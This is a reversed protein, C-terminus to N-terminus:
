SEIEELKLSSTTKKSFRCTKYYRYLHDYIVTEYQRQRSTFQRNIMMHIHSSLFSNMNIQLKKKLTEAIPKIQIEKEYITTYLAHLNSNLNKSFSDLIDCELSRYHIDLESRLVKTAKFENKFSQQMDYLLIFKEDISLSFSNLFSDIALLSFLLQVTENKFNNKINLYNMIMKSDFYFLQESDEMTELGYREIERLYTDSQIKWVFNIALLENFIPHLEKIVYSVDDSNLLQFRIRLHSDTDNYRIFFWKKIIKQTLLEEIKEKLFNLLIIDATKYGSYLKFYIWESGLSLIRSM